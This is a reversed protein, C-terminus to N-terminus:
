TTRSSKESEYSGGRSLLHRLPTPEPFRSIVKPSCGTPQSAFYRPKTLSTVASLGLRQWPVPANGAGAPALRSAIRRHLRLQGHELSAHGLQFDVSRTLSKSVHSM